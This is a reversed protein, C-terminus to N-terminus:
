KTAPAAPQQLVISGPQFVIQTPPSNQGLKFGLAGAIAAVAAVLLAINRPTEWFAQKDKLLLDARMLAEKLDREEDDSLPL